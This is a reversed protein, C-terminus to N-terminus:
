LVYFLLDLLFGSMRARRNEAVAYVIDYSGAKLLQLMQPLIAAPHQLDADMSVITEGQALSIGCLTAEQQGQNKSFSVVRVRTDAAALAKLLFLSEDISADDVFICEFAASGELATCISVFLPMLLPAANYVPVVISIAGSM